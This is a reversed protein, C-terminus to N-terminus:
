DIALLRSADSRRAHASRRACANAAPAAGQTTTRRMLASQPGPVPEPKKDRCGSLAIAATAVAAMILLSRM